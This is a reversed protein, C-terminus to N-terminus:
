LLLDLVYWIIVAVLIVAFGVIYRRWDRSKDEEMHNTSDTLDKEENLIIKDSKSDQKKQEDTM